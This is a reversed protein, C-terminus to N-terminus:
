GNKVIGIQSGTAAIGRWNCFYFDSVRWRRDGQDHSDTLVISLQPLVYKFYITLWKGKDDKLPRAKDFEEATTFSLQPPKNVCNNM